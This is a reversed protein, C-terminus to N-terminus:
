GRINAARAFVRYGAAEALKLSAVNSSLASYFPVLGEQAVSAAWAVTAALAYGRRRADPQTEIGLECAETTRRSSHAISLLRGEVVVGLLPRRAPHFYYEVSGAEFAEVLEEDDATLPRVIQQATTLPLIPLAIQHLAVERSIDPTTEATPPLALAENVRMLLDRQEHAAVDARWINVREGALEATCLKWPPQPGERLVEVDSRNIIPLKIHWVAEIHQRLM